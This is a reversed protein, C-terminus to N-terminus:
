VYLNGEEILDLFPFGRNVYHRQIKVVLRLNAKIIKKRAEKDGKHM